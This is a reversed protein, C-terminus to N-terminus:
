SRSRLIDRWSDLEEVNVPLFSYIRCLPVERWLFIFKIPSMVFCNMSNPFQFSQDFHYKLWKMTWSEWKFHKIPDIDNHSCASARLRQVIPGLSTFITRVINSLLYKLALLCRLYGWNLVQLLCPRDKGSIFSRGFIQHPPFLSQLSSRSLLTRNKSTIWHIRCPKEIAKNVLQLLRWTSNSLYV